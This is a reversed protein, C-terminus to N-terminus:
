LGNLLEIWTKKTNPRKTRGEKIYAQFIKYWVM